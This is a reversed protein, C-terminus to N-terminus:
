VREGLCAVLCRQYDGSTEDRVRQVLERGYFHRYARQCQGLRERDWHVAVVRRILMADKTGMGKMARELLDADHKAPDEGASLMYLLADEMHGSFEKRLVEAL